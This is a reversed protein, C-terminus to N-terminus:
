ETIDDRWRKTIAASYADLAATLEEYPKHVWWTFLPDYGNFYGYWDDLMVRLPGAQARRDTNQGPPPPPAPAILSAALRAADPTASKLPTPLASKEIEATLRRVEKLVDAITQATAMSQIPLRDRRQEQLQQLTRLFPLLPTVAARQSEETQVAQLGNAIQQKLSDLDKRGASNLNRAGVTSLQENWGDYFERLRAHLVPSLPMDYRRGLAARDANFRQMVVRMDSDTKSAQVLVRLSPAARSGTTDGPMGGRQASVPTTLLTAVLAVSTAYMIRNM